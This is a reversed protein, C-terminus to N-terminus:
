VTALFVFVGCLVKPCKEAWGVQVTVTAVHRPTHKPNPSLREDELRKDRASRKVREWSEATVGAPATPGLTDACVFLLFRAYGCSTYITFQRSSAQSPVSGTRQKGAGGARVAAVTFPALCADAEVELIYM